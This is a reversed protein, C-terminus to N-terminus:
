KEKQYMAQATYTASISLPLWFGKVNQITYKECSFFLFILIFINIGTMMKKEIGVKALVLGAFDHGCLQKALQSIFDFLELGISVIWFLDGFLHILTTFQPYELKKRTM